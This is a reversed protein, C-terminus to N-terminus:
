SRGPAPWCRVSGTGRRAAPGSGTGATPGSRRHCRPSAACRPRGAGRRGRASPASRAATWGCCRTGCASPPRVVDPGVPAPGLDEPVRQDALDRERELVQVDVGDGALHEGDEGRLGAAGFGVRDAQQGAPVGLLVRVRCRAVAAAWGGGSTGGVGLRSQQWATLPLAVGGLQDAKPVLEATGQAPVARLPVCVDTGSRARMAGGRARGARVCAAIHRARVARETSMVVMRRWYEDYM